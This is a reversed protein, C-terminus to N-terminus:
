FPYISSVAEACQSCVTDNLMPYEHSVDIVYHILCFPGKLLRECVANLVSKSSNPMKHWMDFFAHSYSGGYAEAVTKNFKGKIGPNEKWTSLAIVMLDELRIMEESCDATSFVYYPPKQSCKIKLQGANKHLRTGHFIQTHFFLANHSQAFAWDIAKCFDSLKEGPSAYMIELYVSAEPMNKKMSTIKKTIGEISFERSFAKQTRLALGNIGIDFEYASHSFAKMMEDDWCRLNTQFTFTHGAEAAKRFYPAFFLARERKAFFDSDCVFIRSRPSNEMIWNLNQLVRENSYYRVSEPGRESWSCYACNNPCGRMTEFPIIMEPYPKMGMAEVTYPFPLLELPLMKSRAKESEEDSSDPMIIGINREPNRHEILAQLLRVFSDEGEGSILFDANTEKLFALRRGTAEPGGLIIKVDPYTRKIILCLSKVMEVNWIYCPFGILDPKESSILDLIEKECEGFYNRNVISVKGCLMKDAYSKLCAAALSFGASYTNHKFLCVSLLLIKLNERRSM